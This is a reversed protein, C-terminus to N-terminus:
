LALLVVAADAQLEYQAGQSSMLAPTQGPWLGTSAGRYRWNHAHELVVASRFGCHRYFRDTAESQCFGKLGRINLDDAMGKVEQVVATGIGKGQLHKAVTLVQVLHDSPAHLGSKAANSSISGLSNLYISVRVPGRWGYKLLMAVWRLSDLASAAKKWLWRLWSRPQLLAQVGTVQKVPAELVPPSPPSLAVIAVAEAPGVDLSHAYADQQALETLSPAPLSRVAGLQDDSLQATTGAKPRLAVFLHDYVSPLRTDALLKAFPRHRCMCQTHSTACTNYLHTLMVLVSVFTSCAQSAM